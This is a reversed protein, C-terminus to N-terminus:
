LDFKSSSARDLWLLLQSAAFAAGLALAILLAKLWTPFKRDAM